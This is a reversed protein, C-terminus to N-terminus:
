LLNFLSQITSYCFEIDNFCIGRFPSNAKVVGHAYEASSLTIFNKKNKGSFVSQCKMCVTEKPSLKCSFDFGIKQFCSPWSPGTDSM